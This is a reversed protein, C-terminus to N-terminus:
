SAGPTRPRSRKAGSSAAEKVKGSRKSPRREGARMKVVNEKDM